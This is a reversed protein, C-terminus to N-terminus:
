VAGMEPGAASQGQGDDPERWRRARETRLREVIEQYREPDNRRRRGADWRRGKEGNCRAHAIGLNCLANTGGLTRPVIHEITAGIGTEADFRVPGGCILCKGVWDRGQRRFTVDTAAIRSMLAAPM